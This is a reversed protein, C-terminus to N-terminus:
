RRDARFVRGTTEGTERDHLVSRFLVPERVAGSAGQPTASVIGRMGFCHGEYRGREVCGPGYSAVNQAASFCRTEADSWWSTPRLRAADTTINKGIDSLAHGCQPYTMGNLMPLRSNM